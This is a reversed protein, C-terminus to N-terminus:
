NNPTNLADALTALDARYEKGGPQYDLQARWVTEDLEEILRRMKKIRAPTPPEPAKLLADLAANKKRLVKLLRKFEVVSIPPAEHLHEIM